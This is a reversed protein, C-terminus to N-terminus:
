GLLSWFAGDAYAATDECPLGTPTHSEFAIVKLNHWRAAWDAQSQNEEPELSCTSYLIRGRPKSRLLAISDAFIQKQIGVLRALQEEDCRYKAEVRRALV